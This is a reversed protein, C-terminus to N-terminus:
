ILSVYFPLYCAHFFFVNINERNLYYTYKSLFYYFHTLYFELVYIYCKEICQLIQIYIPCFYIKNCHNECANTLKYHRWIIRVDWTKDKNLYVLITYTSIHIYASNGFVCRTLDKFGFHTLGAVHFCKTTSQTNRNLVHTKENKVLM